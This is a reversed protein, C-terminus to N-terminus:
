RHRLTRRLYTFSQPATFGKILRKPNLPTEFVELDTIEIAVGVKRKGYYEFFSKKDIGANDGFDNWLRSPSDQVIDNITFAAVIRSMPATAYVYAKQNRKALRPRSKRFEYKKRGALIENAYRPKISLLVNMSM